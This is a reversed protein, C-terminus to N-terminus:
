VNAIHGCKLTNYLDCGVATVPVADQPWMASTKFWHGDSLGSYQSTHCRDLGM